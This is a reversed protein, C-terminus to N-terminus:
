TTNMTVVCVCCEPPFFSFCVFFYLVIIHLFSEKWTKIRNCYLPKHITIVNFIFLLTRPVGVKVKGDNWVTQVIMKVDCAACESKACVNVWACVCVIACLVVINHLRENFHMCHFSRSVRSYSFIARCFWYILQMSFPAVKRGLLAVIWIGFLFFFYM